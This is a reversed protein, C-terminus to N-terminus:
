NIPWWDRLVKDLQLFTAQGTYNENPHLECLVEHHGDKVDIRLKNMFCTEGAANILTKKSLYANRNVIQDAEKYTRRSKLEDYLHIFKLRENFLEVKFLNQTKINDFIKQYLEAIKEEKLNRAASPGTKPHIFMLYLKDDKKILLFYVRYGGSGEFRKKIYPFEFAGDSTANLRKGSCLEETSKSSFFYNIIDSELDRYQKDSILSEFETKFDELCYIAPM